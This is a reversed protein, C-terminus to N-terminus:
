EVDATLWPERAPAAPPEIPGEVVSLRFRDGFGDPVDVIASATGNAQPTLTGAALSPSDGGTIWIRWVRGEVAAPLGIVYFHVQRSLRDWVVYGRVASQPGAERLSAFHLRRRNFMEEARSLESQLRQMERARNALERNQAEWQSRSYTLWSVLAITVAVLLSAAVALWVRLGRSRRVAAEDREPTFAFAPPLPTAKEGTRERQRAIRYRLVEEVQPPVEAPPLADALLVWAAETERLAQLCEPCGGELHRALADREDATLHGLAYEAFLSQCTRCDM